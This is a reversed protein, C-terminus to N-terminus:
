VVLKQGLTSILHIMESEHVRSFWQSRWCQMRGADGIPQAGDIVMEWYEWLCLCARRLPCLWLAGACEKFITDLERPEWLSHPWQQGTAEIKVTKHGKLPSPRGRHCPPSSLEDPFVALVQFIASCFLDAQVRLFFLVQQCQPFSWNNM